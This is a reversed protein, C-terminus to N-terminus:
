RAYEQDEGLTPWALPTAGKMVRLRGYESEFDEATIWETGTLVQGDEHITIPRTSPQAM